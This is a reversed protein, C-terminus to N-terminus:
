DARWLRRLAFAVIAESALGIAVGVIVDSPFHAKRPVQIASATTALAMAVPAGGPYERAVARAVAFAGASHGSPFSRDEGDTSTGPEIAHEGEREVKGPRPRDIRDKVLTKIGTALAHSALMALGTRALRPRRTLLGAILTGLSAAILPPQDALESAAGIAKLAPNDRYPHLAGVVALDMSAILGEGTAADDLNTQRQDM